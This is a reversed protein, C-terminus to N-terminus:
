SPRLGAHGTCCAPCCQKVGVRDSMCQRAFLALVSAVAHSIIVEAHLRHVEQVFKDKPFSIRSGSYQPDDWQRAAFDDLFFLSGAGM